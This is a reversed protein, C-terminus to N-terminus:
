SIHMYSVGVSFDLFRRIDRDRRSEAGRSLWNRHIITLCVWTCSVISLILIIVSEILLILSDRNNLGASQRSTAAAEMM